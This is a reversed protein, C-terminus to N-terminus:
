IEESVTFQEQCLATLDACDMPKILTELGEPPTFIESQGVSLVKAYLSFAGHIVLRRPSLARCNIYEPKTKTLVVYNEPTERLSFSQSFSVSQECCRITKGTSEVYLVNVVCSGDVRLQGGSLSKSQLKPILTCKLIKEIDPCYDPLTLDVDALQEAVTDLVAAPTRLFRSETPYEM